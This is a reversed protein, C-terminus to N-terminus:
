AVSCPITKAYCPINKLSCPIAASCCALSIPSGIELPCRVADLVVAEIKTAPVRAVSGASQPQGQILASSVYYRHRAAGKRSQSPSMRNGRDDFM